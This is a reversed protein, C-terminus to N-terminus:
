AIKRFTLSFPQRGEVFCRSVYRLSRKDHKLQGFTLFLCRYMRQIDSPTSIARRSVLHHGAINNNTEAIKILQLIGSDKTCVQPTISTPYFLTRSGASQLPRVWAQSRFNINIKTKCYFIETAKIVYKFSFWSMKPIIHLDKQPM